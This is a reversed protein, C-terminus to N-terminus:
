GKVSGSAIGEIIRNSLILFAILIPLISIVLTAGIAGWDTTYQGIFNQIGVTLTKFSDSSIFTNVFVFENWNYIMNIIAATAMVPMTMPLTIKFFIHHISAGDMVAAEEVERPLAEYFGLLIMITIPLNFATYTLIISLPNDILNINTFTSFLPILTSHVPIMLGVMFLGLVLRSGKWHMRTIAFTVMSALVVTLIVAALTYTVSNIFYLSINGETWVKAYNEWKPNAPLSFPSMNFVEQSNKLSFLFLWIIPFIQFVAVLVLFVYMIGYAIRNMIPKSVLKTDLGNGIRPTGDPKVTEM